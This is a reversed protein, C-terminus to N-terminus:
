ELLVDIAAVADRQLRYRKSRLLVAPYVTNLALACVFTWYMPRLIISFATLGPSTAGEMAVSMGFLEIKTTAQLVITILQLTAVKWMFLTGNIGFYRRYLMM